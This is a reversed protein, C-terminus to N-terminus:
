KMRESVLHAWWRQLLSPGYQEVYKQIEVIEPFSSVDDAPCVNTDAWISEVKFEHGKFQFKAFVDEGSWFFRRRATFHVGPCKAISSCVRGFSVKYTYLSRPSGDEASVPTIVNM